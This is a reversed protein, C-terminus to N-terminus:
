GTFNVLTVRERSGGWPITNQSEQALGPFATLHVRAICPFPFLSSFHAGSEEPVGFRAELLESRPPLLFPRVVQIGLKWHSHFTSLPTSKQLKGQRRWALHSLLALLEQHM